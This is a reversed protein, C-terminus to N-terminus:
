GGVARPDSGEAAGNALGGATERIVWRSLGSEKML